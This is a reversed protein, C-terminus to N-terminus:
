LEIACRPAPVEDVDDMRLELIRLRVDIADVHRNIRAVDEQLGRVEVLIVVLTLAYFFVALGLFLARWINM